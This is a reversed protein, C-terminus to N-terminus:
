IRQAQPPTIGISAAFAGFSLILGRVIPELDAETTVFYTAVVVAATIVLNLGPSIKIVGAVPPVIGVSGLLAVLSAILARHAEEIHLYDGTVLFQIVFIGAGLGIRAIAPFHVRPAPDPAGTM